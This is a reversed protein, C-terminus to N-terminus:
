NCWNDYSSLFAYSAIRPDKKAMTSPDFLVIATCSSAPKSRDWRHTVTKVSSRTRSRARRLRKGTSNAHFSERRIPTNRVLSLPPLLPPSSFQSRRPLLLLLLFLRIPPLPLCTSVAPGPLRPEVRQRRKPRTCERIPLRSGTLSTETKAEM